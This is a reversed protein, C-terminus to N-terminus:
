KRKDLFYSEGHHENTMNKYYNSVIQNSIKYNKIEQKQRMFYAELKLKNSKEKIQINISKDMIQKIQDQLFIIETKYNLVNNKINEQVRKYIIEFGDDLQNLQSIVNEKRDLIVEFDELNDEVSSLVDEQVKNLDILVDLLENKKILTDTLIKIYTMIDMM